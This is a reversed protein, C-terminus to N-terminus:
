QEGKGDKKKGKIDDDYFKRMVERAGATDRYAKAQAEVSETLNLDIEKGSTELKLQNLIGEWEAQLDEKRGGWPVLIKVYSNIELWDNGEVVINDMKLNGITERRVFGITDHKPIIYDYWTKREDLGFAIHSGRDRWGTTKNTQKGRGHSDSIITLTGARGSEAIYDLLKLLRKKLWGSRGFSDWNKSIWRAIQLAILVLTGIALMLGGMCCCSVYHITTLEYGLLNM